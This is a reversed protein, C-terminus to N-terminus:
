KRLHWNARFVGGAGAPSMSPRQYWQVLNRVLIIPLALVLVYYVDFASGGIMFRLVLALVFCLWVSSEFKIALYSCIGGFVFLGGLAAAYNGFALTLYGVPSLYQGSAGYGLFERSVSNSLDLPKGVWIFRPILNTVM